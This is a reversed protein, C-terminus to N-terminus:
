FWSAFLSQPLDEELQANPYNNNIYEYAADVDPFTGLLQAEGIDPILTVEYNDGPKELLIVPGLSEEEVIEEPIPAPTSEPQESELPESELPETELPESVPPEEAPETTPESTMQSAPTGAKITEDEFAVFTQGDPFSVVTQWGVDEMTAVVSSANFYTTTTVSGVTTTQTEAPNYTIVKEENTKIDWFPMTELALPDLSETTVTPAGEETATAEPSAPATISTYTSDETLAYVDAEAAALRTDCYQKADEPQAAAIPPVTLKQSDQVFGDRNATAAAGNGSFYWQAQITTKFGGPSLSTKVNTITHYGGFGLKNAMSDAKTPSGLETGGIGYPNIYVEMGPYFITNGFMEITAVYVNSLQLLGDIGNSQFRAERVYQMDTKAFSITKVIGRNSGIGIHFRGDAIDDEYVGRGTKTLTSGVTSLLLYNYYKGISVESQQSLPIKQRAKLLPTKLVLTPEKEKEGGVEDFLPDHATNTDAVLISTQFRLNKKINRNICAELLSSQLLNNALNRIFLLIPFADRTYGQTIINEIFWRSFYNTAIPIEGINLVKSGVAETGYPDFDFSGLLIKLNEMGVVPQQQNDEQYMSDCIVEVLDGFYFYQIISNSPDNYNDGTLANTFFSEDLIGKDNVVKTPSDIEQTTDNFNVLPAGNAFYGQNRFTNAAGPSLKCMYIKKKDSLRRMISSLSQKRAAAAQASFALKLDQIQQDTCKGSLLLDRLAKMNSKRRKIMAPSALADLQNSKLAAEQYAQYEVTLTVSGDPAIKLDHEVMNLYYSANTIDIASRLRSPVSERHYGVDVRIRYFKPDYADPHPPVPPPNTKESGEQDTTERTFRPHIILDVFKYIEGDNGTKRDRVLDAFSQFYLVLSAQIDKRAEAPNTGNFSFSFDKLGVGEGKDFPDNLFSTEKAWGGSKGRNLSTTRPFIFETETLKGTGTNRVRYLRIKPAMGSVEAPTLDFFEAVSGSTTLTNVLKDEDGDGVQIMYLRADFPKKTHDLAHEGKLHTHYVKKLIQANLLLGCQKFFRQRNAIDEQTVQKDPPQGAAPVVAKNELNKKKIEAYIQAGARKEEPKSLQHLTQWFAVRSLNETNQYIIYVAPKWIGEKMSDNNVVANFKQRVTTEFGGGEEFIDKADEWILSIFKFYHDTVFNNITKTQQEATYMWSGWAAGALYAPVPNRTFAGGHGAMKSQQFTLDALGTVGSLLTNLISDVFEKRSDTFQNGNSAWSATGNPDGPPHVPPLLANSKKIQNYRKQRGAMGAATKMPGSLTLIPSDWTLLNDIPLSIGFARDGDAIDEPVPQNPQIENKVKNLLAESFKQLSFQEGPKLHSRYLPLNEWAWPAFVFQNYVFDTYRPFPTKDKVLDWGAELSPDGSILYNLQLETFPKRYNFEEGAAQPTGETLITSWFWGAFLTAYTTTKEAGTGDYDYTVEEDFSDRNDMFVRVQSSHLQVHQTNLTSGGLLGAATAEAIAKQAGVHGWLRAVIAEGAQEVLSPTLFYEQPPTEWFSSDADGFKATVAATSADVLAAITGGLWTRIVGEKRYSFRDLIRNKLECVLDLPTGEGSCDGPKTLAM